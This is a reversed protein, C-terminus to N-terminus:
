MKNGINDSALCVFFLIFTDTREGASAISPYLHVEKVKQCGDSVLRWIDIGSGIGKIIRTQSILSRVKLHIIKYMKGLYFHM